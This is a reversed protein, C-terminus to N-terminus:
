FCEFQGVNAILLNRMMSSQPFPTVRHNEVSVFDPRMMMCTFYELDGYDKGVSESDSGPIIQYLPCLEELIAYTSPVVEQLFVM